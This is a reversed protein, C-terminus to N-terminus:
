EGVVLSKDDVRLELVGLLIELEGVVPAVAM